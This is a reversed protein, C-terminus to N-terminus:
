LLAAIPPPFMGTAFCMGHSPPFLQHPRAVRGPLYGWLLNSSCFPSASYDWFSTPICYLGLLICPYSIVRPFISKFGLLAAPDQRWRLAQPLMVLRPEAGDGEWCPRPPFIFLARDLYLCFLLAMQELWGSGEGLLSAVM